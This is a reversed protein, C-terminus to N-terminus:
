SIATVRGDANTKCTVTKGSAIQGSMVYGAGSKRITFKKIEARTSDTTAALEKTCNTRVTDEIASASVQPMSGLVLASALALVAISKM